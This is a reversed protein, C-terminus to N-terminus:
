GSEVYMVQVSILTFPWLTDADIMPNPEASINASHLKVGEWVSPRLRKLANAAAQAIRDAQLGTSGYCRVDIRPTGLPLFSNGHVSVGGAGSVIICGQPMHLDGPMDDNEPLKPSFVHGNVLGGVADLLYGAVATRVDAVEDVASM